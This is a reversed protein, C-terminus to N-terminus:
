IHEHKSLPPNKQSGINIILYKLLNTVTEVTKMLIKLCSSTLDVRAQWDQGAMPPEFGNDLRTNTPQGSSGLERCRGEWQDLRLVM